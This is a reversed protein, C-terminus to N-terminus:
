SQLLGHVSALLKRSQPLSLYTPKWHLFICKLFHTWQSTVFMASAKHPFRGIQCFAPTAAKRAGHKCKRLSQRGRHCLVAFHALLSLHLRTNSVQRPHALDQTQDWGLAKPTPPSSDSALHSIKIGTTTLHLLFIEQLRTVRLSAKSNAQSRSGVARTKQSVGSSKNRFSELTSTVNAGLDEFAVCLLSGAQSTFM